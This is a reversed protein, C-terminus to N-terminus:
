NAAIINTLTKRLQDPAELLPNHGCHNFCHWHTAPRLQKIRAAITSFKADNAGTIWHLQGTFQTLQPWTNPMNALGFCDLCQALGEARQQLRQQRQQTLVAAPLHLQSAFLPQQEWATVFAQIGQYRLCDIWQQDAHRRENCAITTELGPHAAIITLHNFRQPAMAMLALALRGGLSYGILHTVSAPLAILLKNIADNFHGVPDVATGHGPLDLAFADTENPWCLEWDRGLGTFGHLLAYQISSHHQNNTPLHHILM